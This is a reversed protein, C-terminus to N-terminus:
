DILSVTHIWTLFEDTSKFGVGHLVVKEDSSVLMYAPVGAVKYNQATQKDVDVDIFCVIYKNLQEKVQANVLTTSQMKKCWHCWEAGFYLFIPKNQKKSAALAEAYSNFTGGPKVEPLIQTPPPTKPDSMTQPTPLHKPALKVYLAFSVAGILFVIFAKKM